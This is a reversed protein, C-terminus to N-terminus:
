HQANSVYNYIKQSMQQMRDRATQEDSQSIMCLMYPRQTLYVIGCDMYAEDKGNKNYVGIKHAVSVNDPVGAPIKDVFKTKTLLSLLYQSDDQTLVSSFYLAKLISSYGRTSIIAGNPDTTLTVDLAEYVHNFDDQTIRPVILKIATNDSETLALKVADSLKIKYGPGKKYLNGFESDLDSQQLTVTPDDRTKLRELQHYYAMVVPLKFLSAAHFDTNSNVGISVGTPLYEFYMGFTDKYPATTDQIDQRLNLFNLLIDNSNETLVRRGLYPYKNVLTARRVKPYTTYLYVNLIISIALAVGLVLKGM